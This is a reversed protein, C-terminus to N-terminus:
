NICDNGGGEQNLVDQANARAFNRFMPDDMAPTDAHQIISKLMDRLRQNEAAAYSKAFAIAAGGDMALVVENCDAYCNSENDFKTRLEQDTM